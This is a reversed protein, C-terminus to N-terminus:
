LQKSLAIMKGGNCINENMAGQQIYVALNQDMLPGKQNWPSLKRSFRVLFLTNTIAGYVHQQEWLM